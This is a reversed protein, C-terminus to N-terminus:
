ETTPEEERFPLGDPHADRPLYGAQDLVGEVAGLRVGALTVAGGRREASLRAALLVQLLTLDAETVGACDIRLDPSRAMAELLSQRTRAITGITHVGDLTISLRATM